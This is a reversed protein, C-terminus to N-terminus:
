MESKLAIGTELWSKLSATLRSWGEAVGEQGPQVGYHEITFKCCVGEPEVLYVVRSHPAEPGFFLPEFTQEIRTKPTLKTTTQRLMVSGDKRIFETPEGELADGEVTDCIFHYQGLQDAKTLADWLADQTCRILTMHVFDPKADTM